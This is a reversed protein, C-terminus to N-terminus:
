AGLLRTGEILQHVDDLRNVLHFSARVANLGREGVLRLRIGYYQHLWSAVQENPRNTVRFTVIPVSQASGAPTLVEIGPLKSIEGHFFWALAAARLRVLDAGVGEQWAIATALGAAQSPSRTGYEFKSASPLPDLRGAEADFGDAAMTYAGVFRPQVEPLRDRRVYLFGTEVPGLLWKHGSATYFDADLAHLDLAVAGAAQAGDVAVWVKKKRATRCIEEVPMRYGLDSLVHSLVLGRTRSGALKWIAEADRAPDLSPEFFRLVLGSARARAVWPAVGGPHEHTTLIVEDGSAFDLGQAVLNMGETANRTLAIEDLDAGVFHAVAQRAPELHAHRLTEGQLAAEQAVENVRTLVEFPQIALGATNFYRLGERTPFEWPMREWFAHYPDTRAAEPAIPVQRFDQACAADPRWLAAVPAALAGLALWERRTWGSGMDDRRGGM